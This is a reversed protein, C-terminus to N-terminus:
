HLSLLKGFGFFPDLLKCLQPLCTDNHIGFKVIIALNQLFDFLFFPSLDARKTNSTKTNTCLLKTHNINKQHERENTDPSGHFVTYTLTPGKFCQSWCLPYGFILYLYFLLVPALYLSGSLSHACVM